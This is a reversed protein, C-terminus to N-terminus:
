TTTPPRIRVSGPSIVTFQDELETGHKRIERCAIESKRDISLGALRLLIVGHATLKQRFVIEGFDKDCTLLIAREQQARDFVWTDQASPKEDAVYTLELGDQKLKEVIPRDVSEDAVIRM